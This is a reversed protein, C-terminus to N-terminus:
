AHARIVIRTFGSLGPALHEVAEALLVREHAHRVKRRRRRTADPAPAVAVFEHRSLQERQNWWHQLSLIFCTSGPSMTAGSVGKVAPRSTSSAASRRSISEAVAAGGHHNRGADLRLFVGIQAEFLAFRQM